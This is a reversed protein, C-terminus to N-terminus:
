KEEGMERNIHKLHQRICCVFTFSTREFNVSKRESTIQFEPAMICVMLYFLSVKYKLFIFHRLHNFPVVFANKGGTELLFQTMGKVSDSHSKLEPSHFSKSPVTPLYISTYFFTNSPGCVRLGPLNSTEPGVWMSGGDRGSTVDGGAPRRFGAWDSLSGLRPGSGQQFEGRFVMPLTHSNRIVLSIYQIITFYQHM